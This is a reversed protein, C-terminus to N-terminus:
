YEFELRECPFGFLCREKILNAVKPTVLKEWGEEDARLMQLVENSYIHLINKDFGELDVLRNRELLHKYLFTLGDPVPLNKSTMLEASGEQLSPYVYLKVNKTFLEGFAALLDDNEHQYYKENILKLLVKVGLVLGLKRIKYDGLYNILKHHEECNSIVLTQGLAGIIEARDLFDQDNIEGELKLNTITIENLVFTHDADADPEALFQTTSIARMDMNVLTPPRYSGRVILVHKKYLFESAHISLGDPACMSVETLGYKVLMLSILRNDIHKVDPGTIRVMDVEVRDILNDVLSKVFHEPDNLHKFCAYVLNVGLIGIAMQQLRTDKDSMKVHVVVDNSPGGPHLQFRVGLWGHGKITKTYNIASITDAFAFFTTGKRTNGLREELLGYEHDLMKYLRSECVYRGSEEIGYICDSYTKDYASMTKAITGAAAGAQFFHRAVEQGAGIEAFTGYITNDLNIELAKQEPEIPIYNSM